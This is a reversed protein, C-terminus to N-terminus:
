LLKVFEDVRNKWDQTLRKKFAKQSLKELGEEDNLLAELAEEYRQMTTELTAGLEVTVGAEGIVEPIAGSQIALPVCGAAQAELIRFGTNDNLAPHVLISSKMLERALQRPLVSPHVFCSPLEKFVKLTVDAAFEGEAELPWPKYNLKLEPFIHLELDPYKEKLNAFIQALYSLGSGPHSTYILRRKVKKETGAFDSLNVGYHIVKGKELPFGSSACIKQRSFESPFIAGKLCHSVRPDGIGIGFPDNEDGSLWVYCEKFKLRRFAGQWGKFIVTVDVAPLDGQYQFSIYRPKSLPPNDLPTLVITQHGLSDLKEAMHLAAMEIEGLPTEFASLAHFPLCGYPYILVKM